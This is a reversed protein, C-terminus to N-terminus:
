LRTPYLLATRLLPLYLSNGIGVVHLSRSTRVQMKVDWELGVATVAAECAAADDIVKVRSGIKMAPTQTTHALPIFSLYGKTHAHLISNYIQFFIYSFCLYSPASCQLSQKPCLAAIPTFSESTSLFFSLVAATNRRSEEGRLM